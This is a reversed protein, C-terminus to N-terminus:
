LTGMLACPGRIGVWRRWFHCVLRPLDGVAMANAHPPPHTPSTPFQACPASITANLMAVHYYLSLLPYAGSHRPKLINVAALSGSVHTAFDHPPFDFVRMIHLFTMECLLYLCTHLSQPGSDVRGQERQQNQPDTSVACVGQRQVQEWRSWCRV